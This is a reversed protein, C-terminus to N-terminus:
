LFKHEMFVIKAEEPNDFFIRSKCNRYFHFAAGENERIKQENVELANFGSEQELAIIFGQEGLWLHFKKIIDHNLANSGAENLFYAVEDQENYHIWNYLDHQTNFKSNICNVIQWKIKGLEELSNVMFEKHKLTSINELAASLNHNFNISM